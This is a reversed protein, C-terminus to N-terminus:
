NSGDAFPYKPYITKACEPCLRHNNKAESHERLYYEIRAWYGSKDQVKKCHACTPLIGELAKLHSQMNLLEENFKEEVRKRDGNLRCILFAVFAFIILWILSDVNQVVLSYTPPIFFYHLGIVSLLTAMWGCRVGGYRASIMVAGLFLVSYGGQRMIPQLLLTILLAIVVIVIPFGYTRLPLSISRVM